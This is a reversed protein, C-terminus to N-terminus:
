ALGGNSTVVSVEDSTYSVYYNEFSLKKTTKNVKIISGGIKEAKEDNYIRNTSHVGFCIYIGDIIMVADNAHDHSASVSQTAGLEKVKDFFGFDTSPSGSWEEMDGILLGGDKVDEWTNCFEPLGIHMYMSSKINNGYNAKSYTVMREYWEIQDKKLYDYEGTDFNYNHSDLIYLQYLVNEHGDDVNIVFNSRGTVDDDELNKFLCNKYEKSALLRQIYNDAYYGQDDHNGFTYTWPKGYNDIHKFTKKVLKKDAYTFIDGNLVIFDPNSSKVTRDIVKFHEDFNDSQSLHIDGLQLIRYDESTEWTTSLLYESEDYHKKGICGTLLMAIVPLVILSKNNKM